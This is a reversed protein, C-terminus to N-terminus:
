CTASRISLGEEVTHQAYPHKPDWANYDPYGERCVRAIGRVGPEKSNNPSRVRQRHAHGSRPRLVCTFPSSDRTTLMPMLQADFCRPRHACLSLSFLSSFEGTQLTFSAGM